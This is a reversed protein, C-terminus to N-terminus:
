LAGREAYVLYHRPTFKRLLPRIGPRNVPNTFKKHAKIDWNAKELLWDFQWDEFEHFHRDRPDTPNRYAPAFWLDLPVSAFLRTAKIEKLVLYPAVMHELIQFATVADYNNQQVARQDLDLDEGGTNSVEYGAEKMLQSFPNPVGLDLISSGVPLHEKLFELTLSFRKKPYTNEYM